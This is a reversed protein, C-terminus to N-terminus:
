DSRRRWARFSLERRIEKPEMPGPPIVGVMRLAYVTAVYSRVMLATLWPVVAVGAVAAVLVGRSAVLNDRGSVSGVLWGVLVMLSACTVATTIRLLTPTWRYTLQVYIPFWAPEDIDREEEM